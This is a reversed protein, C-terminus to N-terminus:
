IKKLHDSLFFNRCYEVDTMAAILVSRKKGLLNLHSPSSVTYFLRSSLSISLEYKFTSSMWLDSSSTQAKLAPTTQFLLAAIALLFSLKIKM